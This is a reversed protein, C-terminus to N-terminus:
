PTPRLSKWYKTFWRAIEAAGIPRLNCDQREGYAEDWPGGEAHTWAVLESATKNGFLEWTLHLTEIVKPDKTMPVIDFINIPEAIRSRGYYKLHLYINQLVPGY